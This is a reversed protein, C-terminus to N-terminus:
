IRVWDYTLYPRAWTRFQLAVAWRWFWISIYRDRDYNCKGWDMKM